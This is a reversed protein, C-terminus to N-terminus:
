GLVVKRGYFAEAYRAGAEIGRLRMLARFTDETFWPKGRQTAFTKCLLEVKRDAIDETLPVFCNPAGIDGDWKPIEYELILADRFTNWTLDSATKHDQHLDHRYHTFVVDPQVHAKLTEFYEKLSGGVMPFFSERFGQVAVSTAAARALFADAGARAEAERATGAGSLVVWNFTAAPYLQTLRLLTGGCGIEIDDGHAGLCLVSLPAQADRALLLEIM